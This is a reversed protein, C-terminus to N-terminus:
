NISPPPTLVKGSKRPSQNFEWNVVLSVVVRMKLDPNPFHEIEHKEPQMNSNKTNMLLSLPVIFLYVEVDRDSWSM